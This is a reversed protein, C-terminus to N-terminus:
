GALMPLYHTERMRPLACHVPLWLSGTNRLPSSYLKLAWALAFLHYRIIHDGEESESFSTVRLLGDAIRASWGGLCIHVTTETPWLATVLALTDSGGLLQVKLKLWYTGM